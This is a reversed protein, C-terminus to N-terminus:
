NNDETAIFANLYKFIDEAKLAYIMKTNKRVATALGVFKGENDIIPAGSCGHYDDTDLITNPSLFVNYEKYSKHFTLDYKLTLTSEIRTASTAKHRISGYFAYFLKEDPKAVQNEM